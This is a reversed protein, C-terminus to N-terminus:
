GFFGGIAWAKDGKKYPYAGDFKGPSEIYRLAKTMGAESTFYGWITLQKIMSFYHPPYEDKLHAAGFDNNAEESRVWNAQISDYALKKKKYDDSSTLAKAEKDLATVFEKKQDPSLSTFDKGYKAQCSQRLQGIGETFAKQQNETYCDNVITRMFEGIKASKAGPSDATSPIITEGVDDLLNIDDPSFATAAKKEAPKCGSLFFNAGIISGGLLASVASLAQRRNM